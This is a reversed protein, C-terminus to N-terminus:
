GEDEGIRAFDRANALVFSRGEHILEGFCRVLRREGHARYAEQYNSPELQIRVKRHRGDINALVIAIGGTAPDGSELQFVPGEIEFDTWPSRARLETAAVRLIPTAEARIETTRPIEPPAPRAGAFSFRVALSQASAAELLTAIADCLNASVGDGVRRTFPDLSGSAASEQAAAHAAATARAMILGVRREYPPERDDEPMPGTQLRLPIPTEVTVVYSGVEDAGFRAVGLHKMAREHKRNGYVPKPVLAACAASLVLERTTERIRVDADMSVRGNETAQGKLGLRVVDVTAALVDRLIEAAPRREVIELNALLDQVARPYDGAAMRQPVDLEVQEGQVDRRFLGWADSLRAHQWGTQRLYSM